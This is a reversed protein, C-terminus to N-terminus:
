QNLLRSPCAQHFTHRLAISSNELFTLPAPPCVGSRLSPADIHNPIVTFRAALTAAISKGFIRSEGPSFLRLADVSVARVSLTSVLRPRPKGSTGIQRTRRIPPDRRSFRSSGSGHAFIVLGKAPEPIALSGTLSFDDFAINVDNAMPAAPNTM